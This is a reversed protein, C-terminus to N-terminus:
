RLNVHALVWLAAAILLLPPLLAAIAPNLGFLLALYTCTRSILYFAIGIPIGTFIRAGLSTSRASGVLVPISVFIMTLVLLPQVLKTWLAVRYLSADQQSSQLFQIYRIIGWVSLAHPEVIILKLLEPNLLSQWTQSAHHEIRVQNPEILSRAVNNLIWHDTEYSASEAHTAYRLRTGDLEYILIDRLHANPLVEGVAIFANGDRVWLGSATLQVAQGTAAFSRLALAHREAIPTIGEGLIVVAIALIVGGGLAGRIMGGLSVGAARMAVLESRSALNGLGALAGILTALPFIQYGYRPLSFLVFQTVQWIGYNQTGIQDIQDAFIIISLLPIFIALTIVTGLLVARALYRDLITM